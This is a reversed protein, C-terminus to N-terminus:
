PNFQITEASTPLKTLIIDDSALLTMMLALNEITKKLKSEGPFFRYAKQALNIAAEINGVERQRAIALLWFDM